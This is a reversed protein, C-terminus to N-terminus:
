HAPARLIIAEARVLKNFFNGYSKSTIKNLTFWDSGKNIM